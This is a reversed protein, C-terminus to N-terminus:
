LKKGVGRGADFGPFRLRPHGDVPEKPSFAETILNNGTGDSIGLKAKLQVEITRAAEEVATRFMGQDWLPGVLTSVWPHFSEPLSSLGPGDGTDTDLISRAARLLAIGKQVGRRQADAFGAEPNNGDWALPTCSIGDFRQVMPDGEGFAVRLAARSAEQWEDFAAPTGSAGSAIAYDILKFAPHIDSNM